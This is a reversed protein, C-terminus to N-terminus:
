PTVAAHVEGPGLDGASGPAIDLVTLERCGTGDPAFWFRAAFAVDGTAVGPAAAAVSALIHRFPPGVRGASLMEASTLMTDPIADPM